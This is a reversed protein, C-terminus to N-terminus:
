GASAGTEADIKYYRIHGDPTLVKIIHVERGNIIETSAGLVRINTDKLIKRTAEDLSIKSLITNEEAYCVHCSFTLWLLLLLKKMGTQIDDFTLM